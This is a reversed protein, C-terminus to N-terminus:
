LDSLSSRKRGEKWSLEFWRAFCDYMDDGRRFKYVRSDKGHADSRYPTFYACRDTILIRAIHPQNFTRIQVKVGDAHPVLFKTVACVQDKLMGQTKFSKDFEALEAQRHELWDL